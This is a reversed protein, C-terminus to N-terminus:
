FSWGLLKVKIATNPDCPNKGKKDKPVSRSQSTNAGSSMKVKLVTLGSQMAKRRASKADPASLTGTRTKGKKDVAVYEFEAM